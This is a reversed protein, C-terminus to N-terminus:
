REGACVQCKDASRLSVVSLRAFGPLGLYAMRGNLWKHKVIKMQLATRNFKSETVQIVSHSQSNIYMLGSDYSSRETAYSGHKIKKSTIFPVCLVLPLIHVTIM